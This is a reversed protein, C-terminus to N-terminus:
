PREGELGVAGFTIAGRAGAGKGSAGAGLGIGEATGVAGVAGVGVGKGEGIGEELRLGTGTAGTNGGAAPTGTTLEVGLGDPGPCAFVSRKITSSTEPLM